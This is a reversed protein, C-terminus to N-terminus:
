AADSSTDRWIQRLSAAQQCDTGTDRCHTCTAAHDIFARHARTRAAAATAAAARIARTAPGPEEGAAATDTSDQM